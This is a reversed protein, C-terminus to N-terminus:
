QVSAVTAHDLMHGGVKKALMEEPMEVLTMSFKKKYGDRKAVYTVEKGPVREAKTAAWDEENMEAFVYGNMGFIRDDVKMGAKAAPSHYAVSTVAYYGEEKNFEGDLGAWGTGSYHATLKNLCEQTSATCQGEGAFAPAALAIIATSVLLIRLLKM